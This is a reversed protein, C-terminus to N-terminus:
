ESEDKRAEFGSALDRAKDRVPVRLRWPRPIGVARREIGAIRAREADFLALCPQSRAFGIRQAEVHRSRHRSGPRESKDLGARSWTALATHNRRWRLHPAVHHKGALLRRRAVM